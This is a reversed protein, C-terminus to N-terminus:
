TKQRMSIVQHHQNLRHFYRQSLCYLLHTTTSPKLSCKGNSISHNSIIIQFKAINPDICNKHTPPTTIEKTLLFLGRIPKSHFLCGNEYMNVIAGAAASAMLGVPLVKARKTGFRSDKNSTFIGFQNTSAKVGTHALVINKAFIIKM